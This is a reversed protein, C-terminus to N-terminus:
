SVDGGNTGVPIRWEPTAASINRMVVVRPTTCGIMFAPIPTGIAASRAQEPSDFGMRKYNERTLLSSFTKLAVVAAQNAQLLAERDPAETVVDSGEQASAVAVALIAGFIVSMTRGM